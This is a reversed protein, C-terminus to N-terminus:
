KKCFSHFNMGSIGINEYRDSFDEICSFITGDAVKYKENLHLRHFGEINDDLIWHRKDGADRSLKLVFNRVPISGNGLNSFPTRILNGEGWISAYDNYEQPEVVIKYPVKMENLERATLCKESRGKSIIYVPYKPNM